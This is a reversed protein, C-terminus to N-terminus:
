PRDGEGYARIEPSARCLVRRHRKEMLKSRMQGIEVQYEPSRRQSPHITKYVNCITNPIINYFM